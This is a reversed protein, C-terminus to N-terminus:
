DGKLKYIFTILGLLLPIAVFTWLPVNPLIELSMIEGIGNFSTSIFDWSSGWATETNHNIYWKKGDEFGQNYYSNTNASDLGNQFALLNLKEYDLVKLTIEPLVITAQQPSYTDEGTDCMLYISNLETPAIIDVNVNGNTFYETLPVFYGSELYGITLVGETMLTIDCKFNIQEGKDIVVGLPIRVMNYFTMLQRNDGFYFSIYSNEGMYNISIASKILSESLISYDYSEIVSLVGDNFGDAKGKLYNYSIPSGTNYSYYDLPLYSKVQEITTPENNEGFMQTLNVLMPTIYCDLNANAKILIYQRFGNTTNINGITYTNASIVYNGNGNEIYYSCDVSTSNASVYYLGTSNSTISGDYIRVYKATSNNVGVIHYKGGEKTITFGTPINTLTNNNQLQNFNLIANDTLEEAHVYDCVSVISGIVGGLTLTILLISICVYFIKLFTEKNM